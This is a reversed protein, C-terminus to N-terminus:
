VGGSIPCRCRGSRELGSLGSSSLGKAALCVHGQWGAEGLGLPTWTIYPHQSFPLSKLCALNRYAQSLLVVQSYLLFSNEQSLVESKKHLRTFNTVAGQNRFSPQPQLDLCRSILSPKQLQVKCCGMGQTPGQWRCGHQSRCGLSSIRARSLARPPFFLENTLPATDQPPPPQFPSQCSQQDWEWCSFPLVSPQKEPLTQISNSRSHSLSM